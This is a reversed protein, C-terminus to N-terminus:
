KADPDFKPKAKVQTQQQIPLKPRSVEAPPKGSTDNNAPKTSKSPPPEEKKKKGGKKEEKKDNDYAASEDAFVHFSPLAIAAAIILTSLKV